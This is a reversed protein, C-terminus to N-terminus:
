CAFAKLNKWSSGGESVAKRAKEKWMEAKMRIQVGREGEGMVIELCRALEKPGVRGNEGVEAKVATGWEREMLWANTVQDSWTPMAVAPVGHFLGEVTSNWGCHTVFCGVAKHRLVKGQQCWEVVMGQKEEGDFNVDEWRSDKRVVWLYPRQSEILGKGIEEIEEKSMKHVSGFAVYVVSKNEQSDLWEMYKKEDEDFMDGTEGEAAEQVVPGVTILEAYEEMSALANMELEDFSNVLVRPKGGARRRRSLDDFLNRLGDLIDFFPEEPSTITVFSPLDRIQFLPLSPFSIPFSPDKAHSVILSEYGDFFHHYISLVTVAQIWYLASPVGLDSAVDGAWQLMITYILCTVPRGSTAFDRLISTLHNSGLQKIQLMFSRLDADSPHHSSSSSSGDSFPIYTIGNHHIPSTPSPLSPFMRRHAMTATCFTVDATTSSALRKALHLAPNLHGQAPFTIVLFHPKKTPPPPSPPQQEM